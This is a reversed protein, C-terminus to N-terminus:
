RDGSKQLGAAFNAKLWEDEEKSTITVLHGGISEAKAKAEIWTCEERVLRYKSGQFELADAPPPVSATKSILWPRAGIPYPTATPTALLPPKGAAMTGDPAESTMKEDA